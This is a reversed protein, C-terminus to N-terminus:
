HTPAAARKETHARDLLRFYLRILALRAGPNLADVASRAVRPADRCISLLAQGVDNADAKAVPEDPDTGDFAERIAEAEFLPHHGRLGQVLLGSLRGPALTDLKEM